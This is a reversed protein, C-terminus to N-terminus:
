FGEDSMKVLDGIQQSSISGFLCVLASEGPTFVILDDIKGGDKSCIGYVNVVYGDDKVELIKESGDLLRKMEREFSAKRQQDAEEYDVVIVKHINDMIELAAKEEETEVSVKAVLRILGLWLGGVSVVDFGEVLNYERVLSAVAGSNVKKKGTAANGPVVGGTMLAVFLLIAIIKKM